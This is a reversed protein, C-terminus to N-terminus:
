IPPTYGPALHQMWAVLGNWEGSVLLVGIVVLMGGGIRMVAQYHRKVWGFAGM